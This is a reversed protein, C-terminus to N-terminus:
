SASKLFYCSVSSELIRASWAVASSSKLRVLSLSRLRRFSSYSFARRAASSLSLRNVSSFSSRTFISIRSASLSFSVFLSFYFDTILNFSSFARASVLFWTSATLFSIALALASHSRSFFRIICSASSRTSLVLLSASSRPASSLLAVLSFISLYIFFRRSSSALSCWVFTSCISRSCWNTLYACRSSNVLSRSRTSYLTRSWTLSSTFCSTLM